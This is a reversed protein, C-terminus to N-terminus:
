LRDIYCEMVVVCLPFKGRPEIGEQISFLVQRGGVVHFVVKLNPRVTVGLERDIGVLLAEVSKAHSLQNMLARIGKTNCWGLVSSIFEDDSLIEFPGGARSGM